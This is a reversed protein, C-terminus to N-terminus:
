LSRLRPQSPGEEDDSDEPETSTDKLIADPVEVVGETSNKWDWKREENVRVDRSVIVNKNIPDFHRYGKTKEDYGILIYKPSKDEMNTRRQDLVHAYAVSGFVKFHPVIPKQGSWAEQPTLDGLKSHPCRNQVYIACQVAEAWFEKSMNKSKLM